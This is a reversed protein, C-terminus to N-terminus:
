VKWTKNYLQAMGFSLFVNQSIPSHVKYILLGAINLQLINTIFSIIIAFFFYLDCVTAFNLFKTQFVFPVTLIQPFKLCLSRSPHNELKTTNYPWHIQERTFLIDCTDCFYEFISYSSRILHSM